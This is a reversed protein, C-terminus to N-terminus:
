PAMSFAQFHYILVVLEYDGLFGVELVVSYVLYQIVLLSELMVQNRLFVLM